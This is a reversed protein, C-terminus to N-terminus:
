NSICFADAPYLYQRYKHCKVLQPSLYETHSDKGQFLDVVELKSELDFAKKGVIIAYPFGLSEANALRKGISQNTRDDLIVENRLAPISSLGEQISEALGFLQDSGMTRKEAPIVGM